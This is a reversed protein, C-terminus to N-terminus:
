GWMLVPLHLLSVAAAIMRWKWRQENRQAEIFTGFNGTSTPAPAADFFMRLAGYVATFGLVAIGFLLVSPVEQKLAAFVPGAMIKLAWLVALGFAGASAQLMAATRWSFRDLGQMGREIAVNAYDQADRIETPVLGGTVTDHGREIQLADGLRERSRDDGNSVM